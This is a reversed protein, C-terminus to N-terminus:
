STRFMAQLASAARAYEAKILDLQEGVGEVAGAKAADELEKCMQSLELAGFNRSNSKLSHAARRLAEWDGGALVVQEAQALQQPADDFFAELLEGVFDLDGGVTELLADLAARDIVDSM